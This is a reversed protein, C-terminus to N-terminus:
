SSAVPRHPDSGWVYAYLPPTCLVLVQAISVMIAMLWGPEPDIGVFASLIAVSASLLFALSWALESHRRRWLAWALLSQFLVTVVAGSISTFYPNGPLAVAVDLLAALVAWVIILPRAVVDTCIRAMASLAVLRRRSLPTAHIRAPIRRRVERRSTAVAGRM